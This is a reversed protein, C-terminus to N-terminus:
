KRWPFVPFLRSTGLSPNGVLRSNARTAGCGFVGCRCHYVNPISRGPWEMNAVAVDSVMRGGVDLFAVLWMLLSTTLAIVALNLAAAFQARDARYSKLLRVGAWWCLLMTVSEWAIIAIYFVTHVLPSTFARWMLHNGPLTSDMRLVHRVFEYNSGYDTINNLVLITYFLAIALVLVAKSVRLAM